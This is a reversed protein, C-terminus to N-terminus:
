SFELGDFEGSARWEELMKFFKISGGGYPSSQAANPSPKGENNYYGPTCKPGGLGALPGGGGFGLITEVWAQEAAETVEVREHDMGLAYRIIHAQHIATEDLLHPFNATFGGQSTNMIFVNPFGHSGMGHLTRTGDRWHDSLAKGDRGFVDYGARRAYSTGVEFGTAFVICDVEYEQGAVVFGKETIREVGKGDTDV